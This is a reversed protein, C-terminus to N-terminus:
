IKKDNNVVSMELNELEYNFIGKWTTEDRYHWITIGDKFSIDILEKQRTSLGLSNDLTEYTNDVQLFNFYYRSNLVDDDINKIKEYSYGYKYLGDYISLRQDEWFTNLSTFFYNNNKGDIFSRVIPYSPARYNDPANKLDAQKITENFGFAGDILGGLGKQALGKIPSAIDRAIGSISSIKSNNIYESYNTTAYPWEIPINFKSGKFQLENEQGEEEFLISLDFKEPQFNYYMKANTNKLKTWDYVESQGLSHLIELELFQQTRMKSEFYIDRKNNISPTKSNITADGIDTIIDIGKDENKGIDIYSLKMVYTKPNVKFYQDEIIKLGEFNSDLDPRIDISNGDIDQIFPVSTKVPFYPIIHAGLCRSDEIYKIFPTIDYGGATGNSTKYNLAAPNFPFLLVQYPLDTENINLPVKRNDTDTAPVTDNWYLVLWNIKGEYFDAKKINDKLSHKIKFNPKTNISEEIMYMDNFKFSGDGNMRDIHKRKIWNEGKFNIENAYTFFLDIEGTFSLKGSTDKGTFRIIYFLYKNGDYAICTDSQILERETKTYGYKSESGYESITISFSINIDNINVRARDSVKNVIDVYNLGNFFHNNIFEDKKNPNPFNIIHKYVNGLNQNKRAGWQSNNKTILVKM